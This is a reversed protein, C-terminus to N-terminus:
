GESEPMPLFDEISTQGEIQTDSEAVKNVKIGLICYGETLGKFDQLIYIIDANIYRGTKQGDLYDYLITSDGVEYDRDNKRLEFPKRGSAVDDFFMNALKLEHTKHEQKKNLMKDLGQEKASEQLKRKTEKDIRAQEEDYLQEQTKEAEAKNIYQDCNKCTGTKVNCISYNLCSYCLSTISEPHAPQYDDGAKRQQVKEAIEKARVNGDEAAQQAIAKKEDNPM